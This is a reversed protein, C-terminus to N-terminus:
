LFNSSLPYVSYLNSGKHSFDYELLAWAFNLLAEVPDLAEAFDTFKAGVFPPIALIQRSRFVTSNPLVELAILKATSDAAKFSNASHGPLRLRKPPDRGIRNHSYRVFIM